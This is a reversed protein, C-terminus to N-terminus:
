GGDSLAGARRGVHRGRSHIGVRETGNSSARESWFHTRRSDAERAHAGTLSDGARGAVVHSGRARRYAIPNALPDGIPEAGQFSSGVGIPEHDGHRSDAVCTGVAHGDGCLRGRAM